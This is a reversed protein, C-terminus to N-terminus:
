NIFMSKPDFYRKDEDKATLHFGLGAQAILQGQSVSDDVKIRSETLYGYTSYIAPDTPHQITIFLNGAVQGSFVVIGDAVAIVPDGKETDFELGRSGKGYQGAEFNFGELIKAEVPMTWFAETVEALKTESFARSGDIDNTSTTINKIINKAVTTTTKVIKSSTVVPNIAPLISVQKPEISNETKLSTTTVSTTKYSPEYSYFLTLAYLFLLIFLSIYFILKMESHLLEIEINIVFFIVVHKM